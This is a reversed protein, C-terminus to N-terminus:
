AVLRDPGAGVGKLKGRAVVERATGYRRRSNDDRWGYINGTTSHMELEKAVMLKVM